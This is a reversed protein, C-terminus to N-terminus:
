TRQPERSPTRRWLVVGAWIMWVWFVLPFVYLIDFVTQWSPAVTLQAGVIAVGSVWGLVNVATPFMGSSSMAYASCVIAVGLGGGIMLNLGTGAADLLLMGQRDGAEARDAAAVALGYSAIELTVSVAAVVVALDMLPHGRGSDVLARRLGVFVLIRGLLVIAFWGAMFSASDVHGGYSELLDSESAGRTVVSGLGVMGTGIIAVWELLYVIGGALMWRNGVLDERTDSM